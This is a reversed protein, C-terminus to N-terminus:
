QYPCQDAANYVGDRDRDAQDCVMEGCSVLCGNQDYDPSRYSCGELPAACDV